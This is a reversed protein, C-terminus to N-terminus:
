YCRPLTFEQFFREGVPYPRLRDNLWLEIRDALAVLSAAAGPDTKLALATIGDQAAPQLVRLSDRKPPPLRVYAAGVTRRVSPPFEM